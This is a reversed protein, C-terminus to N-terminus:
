YERTCAVPSVLNHDHVKVATRYLGGLITKNVPQQNFIDGSFTGTAEEEDLKKM